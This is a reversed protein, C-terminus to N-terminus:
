PLDHMLSSSRVTQENVVCGVNRLVCFGDQQPFGLMNLNVTRYLDQVIFENHTIWDNSGLMGKSSVSTYHVCISVFTHAM